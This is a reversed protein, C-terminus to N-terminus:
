VVQSNSYLLLRVKYCGKGTTDVCYYGESCDEGVYLHGECACTGIPNITSYGEVTEDCIIETDMTATAHSSVALLALFCALKSAM